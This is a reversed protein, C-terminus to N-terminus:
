SSGPNRAKQHERKPSGYFSTKCNPCAWQPGQGALKLLAIHVLQRDIEWCKPCNGDNDEPLYYFSGVRELKNSVQAVSQAKDLEKELTATRSSLEAVRSQLEFCETQITVLLGFLEQNGTRKASELAAKLNELLGM